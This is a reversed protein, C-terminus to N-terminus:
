TISVDKTRGEWASREDDSFTCSMVTIAQVYVANYLASVICRYSAAAYVNHVCMIHVDDVNCVTTCCTMRNTHVTRAHVRPTHAWLAHLARPATTSYHRHHGYHGYHGHLRYHGHHGDHQGYHGHHGDHQRHHGYHRCTTGMTGTTDTTGMTCTSGTTGTTGMTGITDTTRLARKCRDLPTPLMLVFQILLSSVDKLLLPVEQHYVSMSCVSALLPVEQHYVSM